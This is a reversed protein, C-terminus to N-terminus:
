AMSVVRMRCQYMPTRPAAMTVNRIRLTSPDGGQNTPLAFVLPTTDFAQQFIVTTWTPITFTDQMTAAGMEMEFSHASFCCLLATLPGLRRQRILKRTTTALNM